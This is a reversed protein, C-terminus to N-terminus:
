QKILVFRKVQGKEQGEPIMLLIDKEIFEITYVLHTDGTHIQLKSNDDIHWKGEDQYSNEGYEWDVKFFGDNSFVYERSDLSAQLRKFQDSTLSNGKGYNLYKAEMPLHSNENSIKWIGALMAAKDQAYGIGSSLLVACFVSVSLIIKM